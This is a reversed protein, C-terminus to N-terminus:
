LRHMGHKKEDINPRSQSEGTDDGSSVIRKGDPGFIDLLAKEHNSHVAAFLAASAEEPSSFTKQGKQQALSRAPFSAALVVAVAALLSLGSWNSKKLKLKARRMNSKEM